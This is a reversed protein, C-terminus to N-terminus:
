LQYSISTGVTPDSRSGFDLHMLYLGLEWRSSIATSIGLQTRRQNTRGSDADYFYEHGAFMNWENFKRTIQARIRPRLGYSGNRWRNEVRLRLTLKWQEVPLAFGLFPTIRVEDTDTEGANDTHSLWLEGGASFHESM